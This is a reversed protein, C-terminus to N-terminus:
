HSHIYPFVLVSFCCDNEEEIGTEGEKHEKNVIKSCRSEPPKVLIPPSLSKQPDLSVTKRTTRHAFFIHSQNMTVNM